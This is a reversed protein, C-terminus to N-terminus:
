IFYCDGFKVIEHKDARKIRLEEVIELDQIKMNIMGELDEKWEQWKVEKRSFICTTVIAYYRVRGPKEKGFVTQLAEDLTQGSNIILGQFNTTVTSFVTTMNDALKYLLIPRTFQNYSRGLYTLRLISSLNPIVGQPFSTATGTVCDFM